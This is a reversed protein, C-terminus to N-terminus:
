LGGIAESRALTGLAGDLTAGPAEPIPCGCSSQAAQAAAEGESPRIEEEYGVKEEGM